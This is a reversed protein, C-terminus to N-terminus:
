IEDIIKGLQQSYIVGEHRYFVKGEEDFIYITPISVVLYKVAVGDVDRGFIWKNTYESFEKKIKKSDENTDVDISIITVNKTEHIADLQQMQSHCPTCWTAMFDVLVVEGRYDKLEKKEENITTFSFDQPEGSAIEIGNLFYNVIQSTQELQKESYLVFRFTEYGEKNLFIVTPVYRIGYATILDNREYAEVKIKVFDNLGEMVDNNAYIKEDFLKCIKDNKVYFEIIAPKENDMETFGEEYNKWSIQSTSLKDVCGAFLSIFFISFVVVAKRYM